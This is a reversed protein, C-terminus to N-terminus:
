RAEDPWHGHRDFYRRAEEEAEREAEGSAGIRFLVNTVLVVGACGFFMLGAALGASGGIALFIVGVIVLVVPLGYRVAVLLAPRSSV